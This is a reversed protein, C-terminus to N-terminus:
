RESNYTVRLGGSDNISLIIGSGNVKGDLAKGTSAADAAVNEKSLTTDTEVKVPNNKLYNNVANQIQEDTIGMNKIQKKLLAYVDDAKM